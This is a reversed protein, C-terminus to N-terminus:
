STRRARSVGVHIKYAASLQRLKTESENLRRVLESVDLGAAQARAIEARAREALEFAKKVMEVLEPTLVQFEEEM